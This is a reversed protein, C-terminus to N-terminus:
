RSRCFQAVRAARRTRIPLQRRGGANAGTVKNPTRMDTLMRLRGLQPLREFVGLGITTTQQKDPAALSGGTRVVGDAGRQML